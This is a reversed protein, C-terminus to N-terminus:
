AGAGYPADEGTGLAAGLAVPREGKKVDFNAFRKVVVNHATDLNTWQRERATGEMVQDAVMAEDFGSEWTQETMPPLGANRGPLGAIPVQRRAEKATVYRVLDAYEENTAQRGVAKGYLEDAVARLQRNSLTPRDREFAAQRREAYTRVGEALVTTVPARRAFSDTLLQRWARNTAEDWQDGDEPEAGEGLRDFYGAQAMMKQLNSTQRPTLKHIWDLARPITMQTGAQPLGEIQGVNIPVRGPRQNLYPYVPNGDKDVQAQARALQSNFQNEEGLVGSLDLEGSEVLEALAGTQIFMPQGFGIVDPDLPTGWPFRGQQFPTPGDSATADTPIEGFALDEGSDTTVTADVTDSASGPDAPTTTPDPTTAGVPTAQVTGDDNTTFTFGNSVLSPELVGPTPQRAQEVADPPLAGSQAMTYAAAVEQATEHEIIQNAFSNIFAQESYPEARLDPTMLPAVLPRRDMRSITTMYRAEAPLRDTVMELFADRAEEERAPNTDGSLALTWTAANGFRLLTSGARAAFKWGLKGLVKAVGGGITAGGVLALTNDTPQFETGFFVASLFSRTEDRSLQREGPQPRLDATLALATGSSPGIEPGAPGPTTSPGSPGVPEGTRPPLQWDQEPQLLPGNLQWPPTTGSDSM